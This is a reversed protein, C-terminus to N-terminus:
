RGPRSGGSSRRRGPWAACWARPAAGGCARCCAARLPRPRRQRAAAPASQSSEGPARSPACWIARDPALRGRPRRPHPQRRRRRRLHGEDHAVDGPPPPARLSRGPDHVSPDSPRPRPPWSSSTAPSASTGPGAVEVARAALRGAGGAMTALEVALADAPAPKLHSPNGDWWGGYRRWVNRVVFEPEDYLPRLYPLRAAGRRRPGDHVIEDLTAGGNMMALVDSVLTELAGAATELVRRIREVGAIPLGHAPLLLEPEHGVITRLAVAWEGPLAAGEAPQRRQPLGLHVPRRHLRAGSPCGSGRTTTPRATATTCSWACGASPSTTSPEYAVDPEAVGEPLFRRTAASASAM